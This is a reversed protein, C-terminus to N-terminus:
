IYLLVLLLRYIRVILCFVDPSTPRALSKDAGRILVLECLATGRMEVESVGEDRLGVGCKREGRM